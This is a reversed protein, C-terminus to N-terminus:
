KEHDAEKEIDELYIVSSFCIGFYITYSLWNLMVLLWALSALPGYITDYTAASRFFKTFILIGIIGCTSVMAGLSGAKLGPWVSPVILNILLMLIFIVGIMVLAKNLFTLSLWDFIFSLSPLIGFTMILIAFLLIFALTNFVSNVRSRVYNIDISPIEYLRNAVKKLCFIGRSSILLSMLIALTSFYDSNRSMLYDILHSTFDNSFYKLLSDKVVSVDFRLYRFTIVTLSLIPVISLILYYSLSTTDTISIHKRFKYFTKLFHNM